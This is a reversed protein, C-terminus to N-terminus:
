DSLFAKIGEYLSITPSWDPLCRGKSWPEIVERFRYPLAGWEIRLKEEGIISYFIDVVERLSLVEDASVVYRGSFKCDICMKRGAMILAKVLDDIYIINMKQEGNTMQLRIKKKIADRLLNFVKKRNDHKGYSDFLELTVVHLGYAEQYYVLIDEFAKKTAAYLCVPNYEKDQYHTWTTSTNVLFRIDNKVMAEVLKMGFAINSNILNTLDSFSHKVLVSAALHYVIMPQVEGVIDMMNDQDDNYIHLVTRDAVFKRLMETQSAERIIGHVEYGENLLEKALHMGTFGTIGTILVRKKM